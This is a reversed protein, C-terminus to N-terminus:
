MNLVVDHVRGETSFLYAEVWGEYTPEPLLDCMANNTRVLGKMENYENKLYYLGKMMTYVGQEVSGFQVHRIGCVIREEGLQEGLKVRAVGKALLYQPIPEVVEWLSCNVSSRRLMLQRALENENVAQRFDGGVLGMKNMVGTLSAMYLSMGGVMVGVALLLMVFWYKM